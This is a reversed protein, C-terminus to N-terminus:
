QTRRIMHPANKIFCIVTFPKASRRTLELWNL